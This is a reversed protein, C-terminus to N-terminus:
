DDALDNFLEDTTHFKGNLYNARAEEIRSIQEPNLEIVQEMDQIDQFLKYVEALLNEDEIGQIQEIIKEKITIM